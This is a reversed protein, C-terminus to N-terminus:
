RTRVPGAPRLERHRDVWYSWPVFLWLALAAYGVTHADPPPGAMGAAYILGLVVVMAWFGWAGVADRARTTRVYVVIGAGFFGVELVLTAAVSGWLGLGARIESGPYLPLDPRHMLLDLLWHSAVLGAVVLAGRDDKRLARYVTGVLASWVLVMLLSHSWPYHEFDMPSAAMLGPAIRVREVGTILLLPWLEDLFQAAFSLWGLSTAPAVRKAAFAVGYHGLFM